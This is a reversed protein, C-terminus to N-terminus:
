VYWGGREVSKQYRIELTMTKLADIIDPRQGEPVVQDLRLKVGALTSAESDLLPIRGRHHCPHLTPQTRDPLLHNLLVNAKVILSGDQTVSATSRLSVAPRALAPGGMKSVLKPGLLDQRFQLPM